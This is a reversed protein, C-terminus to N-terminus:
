KLSEELALSIEPLSLRLEAFKQLVIVELRGVVKSGLRM